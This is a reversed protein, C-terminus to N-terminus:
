LLEELIGLGIVTVNLLYGLRLGCDWKFLNVDVIYELDYSWRVLCRLDHRSLYRLHLLVYIFPLVNKLIILRLTYAFVM